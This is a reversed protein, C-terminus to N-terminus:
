VVSKRDKGKHKKIINFSASLGIHDRMKQDKSAYFPTFFNEPRSVIAGNHSIEVRVRNNQSLALVTIERPGEKNSLATVCHRLLNHIGTILRDEEGLIEPLPGRIEKRLLIRNRALGEELLPWCDNLVRSVDVRTRKVASVKALETIQEVIESLKKGNEAIAEIDRRVKEPLDKKMLLLQSFGRIVTLPNNMTHVIGAVMEGIGSLNESLTMQRRLVAEKEAPGGADRDQKLIVNDMNEHGAENM